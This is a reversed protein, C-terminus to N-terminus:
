AVQLVPLLFGHGNRQGVQELSDSKGWPPYLDVHQDAAVGATGRYQQEVTVRLGVDHPMVDGGDEGFVMRNDEGVQAAIAVAALRRAARGVVPVGLPRHGPVLNEHHALEAIVAEGHNAMVAAGPDAMPHGQVVRLRYRFKRHEVDHGRTVREPGDVHCEAQAVPVPEEEGLGLRQGLVLDAGVGDAPHAAPHAGAAAAALREVLLRDPFVDAAEAVRGRDVGRALVVPGRRAGVQGIVVRGRGPALAHGHRQERQPALVAEDAAVVAVHERDPAFVRALYFATGQGAAVVQRFFDRQFRGRGEQPEEPVLRARSSGSRDVVPLGEPPTFGFDDPGGDALLRFELRRTPQGGLYRTLRLLRGSAADVVAVAPLWAGRTWGLFGPPVAGPRTVAIVRYGPRGDAVVEEGGTLRCRLLWSGDALEAAGDRLAMAPGVEVRDPYVQWCRSGDGAITLGTGRAHPRSGSGAAPAPSVLDMRYKNWGGFRIEHVTHKTTGTLDAQHRVIDVLFGVGGFGAKRASPPVAALMADGDMWEHLTATFPTMDVGGRYLLHVLDDSVPSGGAEPATGGSGAAATAWGPLPEDAPMILDPDDDEATAVAFPDARRAPGYKIAAGLGGAALGAVAKLAELGSRGLMAGFIGDPVAGDGFLSGPPPAFTAPGAETGVTLSVFETVDADRDGFQFECRLLFGLTADVVAVVREYRGSLQWRMTPPLEGPDALGRRGDGGARVASFQIGARGGVTTPERVTLTHDTLLWSPALLSEVPPQPKADFGVTVQEPLFEPPRQWVRSGDCGGTWRGDASTLRFRQGPAIDLATDGGFMDPTMLPRDPPTAWPGVNWSENLGFVSLVSGAAGRVSGTLSLRTWDARYLLGVLEREDM